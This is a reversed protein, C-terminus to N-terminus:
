ACNWRKPSSKWMASNRTWSRGWGSIRNWMSRATSPVALTNHGTTCDKRDLRPKAHVGPQRLNEATAKSLEAEVTKKLRERIPKIQAHNALPEALRHLPASERIPLAAFIGYHQQKEGGNANLRALAKASLAQRIGAPLAQMRAKLQQELEGSVPCDGPRAIHALVRDLTLRALKASDAQLTQLDTQFGAHNALKQSLLRM